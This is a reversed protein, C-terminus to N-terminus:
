SVAERIRFLTLYPAPLTGSQDEIAARLTGIDPPDWLNVVM